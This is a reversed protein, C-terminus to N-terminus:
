RQQGEDPRTAWGHVPCTSLHAGPDDDPCICRPAEKGVRLFVGEGLEFEEAGASDLARAAEAAPGPELGVGTLVVMLRAIRCEADSWDRSYGSGPRQEPRLLGRRTWYDLQRYSAGSREMVQATNV